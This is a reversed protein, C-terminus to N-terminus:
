ETRYFIQKVTVSREKDAIGANWAVDVTILICNSAGSCSAPVSKTVARYYTMPPNTTVRPYLQCTVELASLSAQTVFGSSTNFDAPICHSTNSPNAFFTAWPETSKKQRFVEIVEQALRTAVQRYESESSNQASVTLSLAVGTLVVGVIAVAILVEILTNGRKIFNKKMTNADWLMVLLAM